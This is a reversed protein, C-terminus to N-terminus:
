KKLEVKLKETWLESKLSGPIRMPDWMSHWKEKMKAVEPDAEIAREMRDYAERGEYEDIWMWREETPDAEEEASQLIRSRTYNFKDSHSKQEELIQRWMELHKQSFEKRIRWQAVEYLM